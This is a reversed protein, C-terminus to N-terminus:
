GDLNQVFQPQEPTFKLVRADNVIFKLGHKQCADLIALNQAVTAGGGPFGAHTFNCEAIEAYRKELNGTAAPGWWYSIIFEEGAIARHSALLVVLFLLRAFIWPRTM